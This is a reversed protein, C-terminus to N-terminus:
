EEEGELDTRCCDCYFKSRVREMTQPQQYESECDDCLKWQIGEADTYSSM